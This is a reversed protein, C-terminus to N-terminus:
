MYTQIMLAYGLMGMGYGVKRSFPVRDEVATVYDASKNM